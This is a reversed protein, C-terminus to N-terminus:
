AAPTLLVGNLFWISLLIHVLKSDPIAQMHMM